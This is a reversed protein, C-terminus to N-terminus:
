ENRGQKVPVTSFLITKTTRLFQQEAEPRPNQHTCFHSVVPPTSSQSFLPHSGGYPDAINVLRRKKVSAVGIPRGLLRLLVRIWRFLNIRCYIMRDHPLDLLGDDSGPFRYHSRRRRGAAIWINVHSGAVRRQHLFSFLLSRGANGAQLGAHATRFFGIRVAPNEEITGSGELLRMMKKMMRNIRMMMMVSSEREVQRWFLPGFNALGDQRGDGVFRFVFCTM